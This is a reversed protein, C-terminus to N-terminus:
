IIEKYLLILMQYNKSLMSCIANYLFSWWGKNVYSKGCLKCTARTMDLHEKTPPGDSRKKFGFYKWVHSRAKGGSYDFLVSSDLNSASADAINKIHEFFLFYCFSFLSRFTFDMCLLREYCYDITLFRLRNDGIDLEESRNDIMLSLRSM